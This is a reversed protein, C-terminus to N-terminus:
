LFCPSFGKANPHKITGSLCEERGEKWRGMLKMSGMSAPQLVDLLHVARPSDRQKAILAGVNSLNHISNGERVRGM